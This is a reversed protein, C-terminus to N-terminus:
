VVCAVRFGLGGLAQKLPKGTTHLLAGEQAM